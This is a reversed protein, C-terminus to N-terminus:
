LRNAVFVYVALLAGLCLAAGVLLAVVGALAVLGCVGAVIVAALQWGDTWRLGGTSLAVVVLAAVSSLSLVLTPLPRGGLTAVACVPGSCAAVGVEVAVLWGAFAGNLVVLGWFAATVRRELGVPMAGWPRVQALLEAIANPASYSPVPAVAARVEPLRNVVAVRRHATDPCGRRGGRGGSRAGRACSGFTAADGHHGGIETM